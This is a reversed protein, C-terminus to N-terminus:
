YITYFLFYIFAQLFTRMAINLAYKRTRKKILILLGIYLPIYVSKTKYDFSKYAIGAQIPLFVVKKIWTVM